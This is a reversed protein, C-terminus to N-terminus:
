ATPIFATLIDCLGAEDVLGAAKKLKFWARKRENMEPWEDLEANVAMPFVDVRCEIDRGKEMRKIYNFHGIPRSAVKGKIGAEEFAELMALKHPSLRKKPWGKPIVWRGTDRSTVMLVEITKGSIRYPLAAYQKKQKM